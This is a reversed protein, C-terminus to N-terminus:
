SNYDGFVSNKQTFTNGPKQVIGPMRNDFLYLGAGIEDLCDEIVFRINRDDIDPHRRREAILAYARGNLCPRQNRVCRDQNERLIDLGFIGTLQQFGAGPRNAIQQFVTYSVDGLEQCCDNPYRIAARSEIRLNDGLEHSTAPPVIEKCVEGVAFLFDQCRHGLAVGVGGDGLLEEDAFSGDLFVDGVDEAFEAEFGGGALM